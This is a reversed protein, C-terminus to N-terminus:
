GEGETGSSLQKILRLPASKDGDRVEDTLKKLQQRKAMAMTSQLGFFDSLLIQDADLGHISQRFRKVQTENTKGQIKLAIIREVSQNIRAMSLGGGAIAQKIAAVDDAELQQSLDVGVEAAFSETIPYVSLAM